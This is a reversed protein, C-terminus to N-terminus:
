RWTAFLLGQIGHDAGRNTPVKICPYDVMALTQKVRPSVRKQQYRMFLYSIFCINSGIGNSAEHRDDLVRAPGHCCYGVDGLHSEKYCSVPM